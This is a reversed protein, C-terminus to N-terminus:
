IGGGHWCWWSVDSNDSKTFGSLIRREFWNVYVTQKGGVNIWKRNWKWSERRSRYERWNEVGTSSVGWWGWSLINVVIDYQHTDFYNSGNNGFRWKWRWWGRTWTPLLFFKSWDWLIHINKNVLCTKKFLNVEITQEKNNIRIANAEKLFKLIKSSSQRVQCKCNKVSFRKKNSM